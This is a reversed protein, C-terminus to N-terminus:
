AARQRRAVLTKVVGRIQDNTLQDHEGDYTEPTGNWFSSKAVFIIRGRFLRSVTRADRPIPVEHGNSDHRLFGRDWVGYDLYEGDVDLLEEKGRRDIDEYVDSPKLRSLELLLFSESPDAEVFELTLRKPKVVYAHRGSTWLDLCGEEPSASARTIDCGGGTPLHAHNHNTGMFPKLVRVIDAIGRWTTTSTPPDGAVKRVAATWNMRCEDHFDELGAM